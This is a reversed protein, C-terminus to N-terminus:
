HLITFGDFHEEEKTWDVVVSKVDAFFSGKETLKILKEIKDKEGQALIEVRGDSLNKVWGSLGLKKANNKIFQRLGVGQVFGHIFINAQM